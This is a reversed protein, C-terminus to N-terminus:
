KNRKKRKIFWRLWILVGALIVWMPWLYFLGVVFIKIGNWGTEVAKSIKDGFNPEYPNDYQQYVYLTITSFGTQNELFKMRGEKAEIEERIVRLENEVSLIENISHAQKLLDLYRQEVEKKTKLRAQIDVYEETVDQVVINKSNVKSGVKELQQVMDDFKEKAVRIVITNYLQYSSHNEQESSVYSQYQKIINHIKVIAEKYDEVEINLNGTKIVKQESTINLIDNKTTTSSSQPEDSATVAKDTAEEFETAQTNAAAQESNKYNAGCSVSFLIIVSLIFIKITQM